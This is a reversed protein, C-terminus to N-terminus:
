RLSDRSNSSSSVRVVVPFNNSKMATHQIGWRIINKAVGLEKKLKSKQTREGVSEHSASLIENELLLFHQLGDLTEPGLEDDFQYM